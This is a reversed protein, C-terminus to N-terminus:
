DESLERFLEFMEPKKEDRTNLFSFAALLSITKKLKNIYHGQYKTILYVTWVVVGASVLTMTYYAIKPFDQFQQFIWFFYFMCVSIIFGHLVKNGINKSEFYFSRFLNFLAYAFFGLFLGFREWFFHISKFGFVEEQRKAKQYEKWTADTISKQELYESYVISGKAFEKVKSLALTRNDKAKKHHDLTTYYHNSFDDIFEYSYFCLLCIFGVIYPRIKRTILKREEM